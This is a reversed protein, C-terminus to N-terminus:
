IEQKTKQSTSLRILEGIKFLDFLLLNPNSSTLNNFISTKFIRYFLEFPRQLHFRKLFRYCKLLRTELISIQTNIQVLNYLATKTKSLFQKHEELGLHVLPNDMHVIEIGKRQLDLGFLTDEHGYQTLSEDFQISLFLEKPVLFNNSMFSHYPREGREVANKQERIKGYHWHLILEPQEPQEPQYIRGGYLVKFPDLLNVYAEINFQDGTGSDCDLFFLYPYAAEHALRNRIASRGLNQKNETYIINKLQALKRNSNKFALESGDDKCLIEYLIGCEQCQRDLDTVLKKVDFNFVPILISLM